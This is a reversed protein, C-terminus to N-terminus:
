LQGWAWQMGATVTGMGDYQGRKWSALGFKDHEQVNEVTAICV